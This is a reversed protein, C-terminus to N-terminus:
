VTRERVEVLVINVPHDLEGTLAVLELEDSDFRVPLFFDFSATIAAGLAPAAGFTIQGTDPDLVIATDVGAVKATVTGDEPRTIKRQRTVAGTQYIRYLQFVTTSGDGTGIPQDVAQALM